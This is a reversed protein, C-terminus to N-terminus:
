HGLRVNGYPKLYRACLRWEDWYPVYYIQQVQSITLSNMHSAIDNCKICDLCGTRGNMFCLRIWLPMCRGLYGLTLYKSTILPCRHRFTYCFVSGEVSAEIHCLDPLSSAPCSVPSRHGHCPPCQHTQKKASLPVVSAMKM